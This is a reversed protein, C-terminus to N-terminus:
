HTHSETAQEYLQERRERQERIQLGQKASPSDFYDTLSGENSYWQATIELTPFRARLKQIEGLSAAVNILHLRRLSPFAAVREVDEILVFEGSLELEELDLRELEGFHEATLLSHAGALEDSFPFYGHRNDCVRLKRLRPMQELCDLGEIPLHQPLSLEQLYSLRAVQQLDERWSERAQLNGSEVHHLFPLLDEHGILRVLWGPGVYREQVYLPCSFPNSEYFYDEVQEEIQKANVHHRCWGLLLSVVTLVALVDYIRFRFFGGRSRIWWETAAAVLSAVVVFVGLYIITNSYHFRWEVGRLPWNDYNSWFVSGNLPGACSSYGNDFEILLTSKTGTSSGAQTSLSRVLYPKPWGHVYVSTDSDWHGLRSASSYRRETAEYVVSSQGGVWTEDEEFQSWTQKGPVVILVMAVAVVLMVCWTIPHLRRLRAFAPRVLQM